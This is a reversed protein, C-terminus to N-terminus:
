EEEGEQHETGAAAARVPGDVRLHCEAAEVAARRHLVVEGLGEEERERVAVTVETADLFVDGDVRGVAGTAAVAGRLLVGGGVDLLLADILGVEHLRIALM